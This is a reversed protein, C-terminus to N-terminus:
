NDWMIYDEGAKRPVGGPHDVYVPAQLLSPWIPKVAEADQAALVARM